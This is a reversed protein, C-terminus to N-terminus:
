TAELRQIVLQVEVWQKAEEFQDLPFYKNPRAHHRAENGAVAFYNGSRIYSKSVFGMETGDEDVLPHKYAGSGLCLWKM